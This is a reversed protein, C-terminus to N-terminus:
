KGMAWAPADSAPFSEESAELVEDLNQLIARRDAVTKSKGRLWAIALGAAMGIAVGFFIARANAHSLTVSPM